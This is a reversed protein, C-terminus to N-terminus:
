FEAAQLDLHEERAVPQVCGDVLEDGAQVCVDPPVVLLPDFDGKTSAARDPM